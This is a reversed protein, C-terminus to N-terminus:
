RWRVMKVSVIIKIYRTLTDNISRVRMWFGVIMMLLMLRVIMMLLVIVILMNLFLILSLSINSGLKVVVSSTWFTFQDRMVSIISTISTLCLRSVVSTGIM